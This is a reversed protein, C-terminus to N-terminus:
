VPSISAKWLPSPFSNVYLTHIYALQYWWWLIACSCLCCFFFFFFSWVSSACQAGKKQTLLKQDSDTRKAAECWNKSIQFRSVERTGKADEPHKFSPFKTPQKQLHLCLCIQYRSYRCCLFFFVTEAENLNDEVFIVGALLEKLPSWTYSCGVASWMVWLLEEQTCGDTQWWRQSLTLYQM